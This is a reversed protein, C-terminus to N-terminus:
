GEALLVGDEEAEVAPDEEAGGVLDGGVRRDLIDQGQVPQLAHM